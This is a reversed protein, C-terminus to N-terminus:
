ALKLNVRIEFSAGEGEKSRVLISGGMTSMVRRAIALESEPRDFLVPLKDEAIGAGNDAIHFHYYSSGRVPADASAKLTIAGGSATNEIANELICLFALELGAKGGSVRDPMGETMEVSFVIGKKRCQPWIVLRLLDLCSRVSFVSAAPATRVGPNLRSIEALDEMYAPLLEASKALKEMQRHLEKLNNSDKATRAASQISGMQGQLLSQMRLISKDKEKGLIKQDTEKKELAAEQRALERQLRTVTTELEAKEEEGKQLLEGKERVIKEERERASAKTELLATEKEKTLREKQDELSEKSRRDLETVKWELKLIRDQYAKEQQRVSEEKEVLAAEAKSAKEEAAKGAREAEELKRQLTEREQRHKEKEEKWSVAYQEEIKQKAKSVAAKKERAAQELKTKILAAAAESEQQAIRGAEELEEKVQALEEQLAKLGSKKELEQVKQELEKRSRDAKRQEREEEHIMDAIEDFMLYLVTRGSDKYVSTVTMHCPIKEPESSKKAGSTGANQPLKQALLTVRMALPKPKKLSAMEAVLTTMRKQDEEPMMYFVNQDMRSYIVAEDEELRRFFWGNVYMVRIDNGLVTLTMIGGPLADAFTRIQEVDTRIYKRSMGVYVISYGDGEKRLALTVRLNVSSEEHKPILNVDYATVSVPELGPASRISAVDVNYAKPDEELAERLFERISRISKLHRIENPTIWIIDDSLFTCTADADKKNFYQTLFDKGFDIASQM